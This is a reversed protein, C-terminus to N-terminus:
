PSSAPTGSGQGTAKQISDSAEQTLKKTAEGFSNIGIIAVVFLFSLMVLYEMTTAGRRRRPSEAMPSLSDDQNPREDQGRPVKSSVHDLM